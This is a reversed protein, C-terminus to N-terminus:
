FNKDIKNCRRKARIVDKRRVVHKGLIERKGLMERQFAGDIASASAMTALTALVNKVLLVDVKILPGALKALLAGLFEFSQINKSLQAKSLKIDTSM